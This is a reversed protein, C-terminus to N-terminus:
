ASASCQPNREFGEPRLQLRRQDVDASPNVVERAPPPMRWSLWAGSGWLSAAIRESYSQRPRLDRQPTCANVVLSWSARLMPPQPYLLDQARLDRLPILLAEV